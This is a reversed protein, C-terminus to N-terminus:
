PWPETSFKRIIKGLQILLLQKNTQRLAPSDYAYNPGKSVDIISSKQLYM